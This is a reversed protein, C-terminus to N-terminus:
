PTKQQKFKGAKIAAMDEDTIRNKDNTTRLEFIIEEIEPLQLIASELMYRALKIYGKIQYRKGIELVKTKPLHKLYERNNFTWVGDEPDYKNLTNIPQLQV